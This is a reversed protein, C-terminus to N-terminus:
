PFMVLCPHLNGDKNFMGAHRKTRYNSGTVGMVEPQSLHCDLRHM